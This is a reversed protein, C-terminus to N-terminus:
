DVFSVVEVVLQTSSLRITVFRFPCCYCYHYYYYYYSCYCDDYHSRDHEAFASTTTETTM